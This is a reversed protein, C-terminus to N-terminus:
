HTLQQQKEPQLDFEMDDDNGQKPFDKARM